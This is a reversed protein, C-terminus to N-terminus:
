CKANLLVQTSVVEQSFVQLMRAECGAGDVDTLLGVGGRPGNGDRNVCSGSVDLFFDALM